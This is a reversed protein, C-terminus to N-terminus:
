LPSPEIDFEEIEDNPVHPARLLADLNAPTYTPVGMMSPPHEMYQPLTVAGLKNQECHLELYLEFEAPDAGSASIAERLQPGLRELVIPLLGLNM